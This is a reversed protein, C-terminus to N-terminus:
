KSRIQMISKEAAQQARKKIRKEIAEVGKKCVREIATIEVSENENVSILPKIGIEREGVNKKISIQIQGGVIQDSILIDNPLFHRVYKRVNKGLTTKDM